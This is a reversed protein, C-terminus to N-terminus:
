IIEINKVQIWGREGSPIKIEIWDQLRDTVKIKLGEHIVFLDNSSNDPSSKVSVVSQMVIAEPVDNWRNKERNAFIISLILTFLFIFSLLSLTLSAM